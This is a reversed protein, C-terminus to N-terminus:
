KIPAPNTVASGEAGVPSLAHVVEFSANHSSSKHAIHNTIAAAVLSLADVVQSSASATQQEM